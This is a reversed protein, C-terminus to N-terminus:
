RVTVAWNLAPTKCTATGYGVGGVVVGSVKVTYKKLKTAKGEGELAYVKFSGKFTGKKPTYTLKMASLNTKGASTDVILGKGSAEDYMEPQAAGMKPKAWKVSAAKAFKWKGGSATVPEGDPLLEELAGAPLSASTADVHVKTGGKSWNGGVVASQVHYKGMSGAFQTGGITILMTGFDKVELSVDKPLTGDIGTLNVATSKHKKGDLTTLTGSVKSTGKKANVKGLKLEVIGVVACGDYVAGQLKVAKPAEYPAVIDTANLVVYCAGPGPTVPDPNVPDPTVPDPTVPDPTVRETLATDIVSQVREAVGGSGYALRGDWWNGNFRSPEFVGYSPVGDAMEYEDSDINCYYVVFNDLFAEGLSELYRKVVSTWPCWDAGSLIFLLKGDSLAASRATWPSLYAFSAFDPIWHAYYTADGAVTTNEDIQEGGVAATWWGAFVHGEWTVTPPNVVEGRRQMRRMGGEGGNADFVITDGDTSWIAYLTIDEYEDRLNLVEQQDKYVVPGDPSLAWGSFMAGERTFANIRLMESKDYYLYQDDMEGEGGNANFALKYFIPNWRAFLTANEMPANSTADVETGGERATCWCGYYGKRTLEPLGGYGYPKGSVYQMTNFSAEGGNADFTVTVVQPCSAYFQPYLYWGEGDYYRERDPRAYIAVMCTGNTSFADAPVTFSTGDGFRYEDGSCSLGWSFAVGSLDSTPDELVGHRWWRVVKPTVAFTGGPWIAHQPVDMKEITVYGPGYIVTQTSNSFGGYVATVTATACQYVTYTDYYFSLEGRRSMQAYNVNDGVVSWEPEVEVTTGDTCTVTATYRGGPEDYLDVLKPGRVTLGAIPSTIGSNGWVAYLTIVDWNARLNLVEEQDKYVVPGDPSLAWGIFMVGPKTFNNARLNAPRDYYLWSDAMSGTGGNADYSIKYYRPSWQAYIQTVSALCNSSETIRRGGEAATYWDCYYGKRVVEPLYGYTYDVAYESTQTAPKGGDAVFTVNVTRSPAADLYTFYKWAYQTIVHGLRTGSIEIYVYCYGDPESTGSPIQLVMGDAGYTVDRLYTNSVRGYVITFDVGDLNDTPEETVGHRWWTVTQPVIKLAQGPWVARQPTTWSSLSVSWGWVDVEKSASVGNCEATVRLRSAKNYKGPSPFAVLGDSSIVANTVATEEVTWKPAVDLATGNALRCVATFKATDVDYLDIVDPGTLEVRKVDPLNWVAYLTVTQGCATALNCVEGGDVFEVKGGPTRSWGAFKAGRRAFAAPKLSSCTGVRSMQPTMEGTGGNADFVIKYGNEVWAAYLAVSANDDSTKLFEAGDQYVVPGDPLM